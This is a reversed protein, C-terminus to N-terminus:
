LWKEYWISLVMKVVASSPQLHLTVADGQYPCILLVLWSTPRARGLFSWRGRGQAGKDRQILTRPLAPPIDEYLFVTKKFKPIIQVALRQHLHHYLRMVPVHRKRQVDTSQSHRVGYDNQHTLWYNIFKLQIQTQIKVKLTKFNNCYRKLIFCFFCCKISWFTHLLINLNKPFRAVFYVPAGERRNLFAQDAVRNPSFFWPSRPPPHCTFQFFVFILIERMYNWLQIRQHCKTSEELSKSLGHPCVSSDFCRASLLLM